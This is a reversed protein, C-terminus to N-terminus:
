SPPRRFRDEEELKRLDRAEIKRGFYDSVDHIFITSAWIGTLVVGFLLSIASFSDLADRSDFPPRLDHPELGYHYLAASISCVVLPSLSWLYGKIAKM